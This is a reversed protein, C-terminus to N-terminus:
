CSSWRTGTDITTAEAVHGPSSPARGSLVNVDAPRTSRGTLERICGVVGAPHLDSLVLLVLQYASTDLDPERGIARALDDGHIVLEIVRTPLYDILRMRGAPSAVVAGDPTAAVLGGVRAATARVTAPPDHLEAGGARGRLLIAEHVSPDGNGLVARFYPGPGDIEITGGDHADAIPRLYQEITILARLAHAVLERTTWGGLAVRDWLHAPTLEVLGVFSATAAAFAARIRIPDDSLRDAM